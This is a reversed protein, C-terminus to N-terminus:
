PRYLRIDDFYMQGTGGAVTTNGRTGFGITISTVNAMNVGTFQSLPIVWETWATAQVAAPDTHYVVVTGNLAVYMKEAANTAAGRFWLSLVGVGDRTWDRAAGTLTLTAESFKRNNDYSLPMAQAGGHVNGRETLPVDLNGVLAGNTTTGFGDIWKLYIRNSAPDTEALDNYSEIDDVVLYDAVSFNWTGGQTITGDSNVEDVRWYYPGGGWAVGEAPTYSTVSQRGRYVGTTDSADANVVAAKDLGFYVDHQSAKEGRSWSLPLANSLAAVAGTGPRPSGARLPDEGKNMIEAVKAASIAYNFLRVDDLLGDYKRDGSNANGLRMSVYTKLNGVNNHPASGVLAGNIYFKFGDAPDWTAAVHIWQDSYSWNVNISADGTGGDNGEIWYRIQGGSDDDMNVHMEDDGGFGDGGTGDCAYWIHGEDNTQSSNIWMTVSGKRNTLGITGAPLTVYGGPDGTFELGLSFLSDPRGVPDVITGHNNHGSFDILKAGEGPESKYWAVMNPDTVSIDPIVSFSWVNGKNTTPPNFEDVRWYYTKGKVLPGAPTYSTTAVPAGGTANAVTDPNDGFYVTHLKADLGAAWSLVVGADQFKAGDAPIPEYAQRPPIWFSWVPGKHKTTGNTEVEDVRWYYTTGPVLGDPYPVGFFGITFFPSAVNSRFTGAAGANVDEFSEGLYIDHSVATDGPTWTLNAWTQLYKEGDAPNPNYAALKPGMVAVGLMNGGHGETDGHVTVTTGAKASLAFISSYQNISGDGNEDIGIDDKTDVFGQAALWPMGTVVPDVGKGGAAGGMRNDVFVYLTADASFTVDLEWASWNKNDNNTLVIQAGLLYAPIDNYQHTRDTYILADEAMPTASIVPLEPADADTNRQAVASIWQAQATGGFLVALLVLFVFRRCM